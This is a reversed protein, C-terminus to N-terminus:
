RARRDQITDLIARHIDLPRPKSKSAPAENLSTMAAFSNVATGCTTHNGIGQDVYTACQGAVLNNTSFPGLFIDSVSASEQSINNALAKNSDAVTASDFGLIQIASGNTGEITNSSVVSSDVAGVLAIGGSTPILSHMVIHNNTIIAGHTGESVDFGVADMGDANPHNTIITNGSVMYRAEPYGGFLIGAPFANPDGTEMIVLNNTITAHGHSRIVLIGLTQVVGNSQLFHVTNGTIDIDASVEDFQMGNAFDGTSMEILNDAIRIRGTIANQPDNNGAVFIGETETFRFPFILPVPVQGRIVNGVIESGTSSILVIPSDMPGEFDISEIHTKVPMLGLFPALGGNITTMSQGVREGLITVDTTLNAGTGNQVDAPGFNFATPQGVSNTAKLIVTGGGDIAAQVNQVDLPFLGTPYVVSSSKVAGFAEPSASALALVALAPIIRTIYNATKMPKTEKM